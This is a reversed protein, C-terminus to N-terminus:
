KHEGGQGYESPSNDVGDDHVDVAPRAIRLIQRVEWTWLWQRDYSVQQVQGFTLFPQFRRFPSLFVTHEVM